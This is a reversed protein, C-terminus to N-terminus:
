IKTGLSRFWKSRSANKRSVYWLLRYRPKTLLTACKLRWLNSNYSVNWHVYSYKPMVIFANPPAWALIDVQNPLGLWLKIEFTVLFLTPNLRFIKTNGSRFVTWQLAPRFGPRIPRSNLQLSLHKQMHRSAGLGFHRGPKFWVILKPWASARIRNCMLLTLSSGCLRLLFCKRLNTEYYHSCFHKCM